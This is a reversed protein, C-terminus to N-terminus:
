LFEDWLRPVNPTEYVEACRRANQGFQALKHSDVLLTEFRDAFAKPSPDEVLFGNVGDKVMDGLDGIHPVVAPLGCLMAEIMALSLGESASTLVFVKARRLWNEVDSKPGVFDVQGGIGLDGAMQKLTALLPGGGVVLACIAPVRKAAIRIAELFVDVQKVESLRGVLILDHTPSATTPSFRKGDFGGPIIHFNTKVDHQQFFDIASNGMTVVHDIEKVADLLQKELDFDPAGIKSFIRNETKNGGGAVERPGGGCIYLSRAGIAKALLAAVLGNLLLHFGGVVDPRSMAGVFVFTLLRAAVGGLVKSLWKPPYIAEVNQMTPVPTSAVMRVRRCRSSLAMPRLHSSIWNDSYFTGTMLIEVPVLSPLTKRRGFTKALNSALKLVLLYFAMCLRLFRRYLLIRMGKAYSFFKM